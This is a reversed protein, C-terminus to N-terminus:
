LTAARMTATLEVLMTCVVAVYKDQPATVLAPFLSDFHREGTLIPFDQQLLPCSKFSTHQQTLSTTAKMTFGHLAQGNWNKVDTPRHTIGIFLSRQQIKFSIIYSAMWQKTQHAQIAPCITGLITQCFRRRHQLFPVLLWQLLTQPLM